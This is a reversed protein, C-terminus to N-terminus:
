YDSYETPYLLYKTISSVTNRYRDLNKMRDWEPHNVFADWNAQQATTDAHTTMYILHPMHASSLVECFFVPNFELEQFIASEGENFMEVKLNYLKETAAEYSRFEYVRESRPTTLEPLVMVPTASFSRLIMSEIRTYPSKDHPADIYAQASQQYETDQSLLGPLQEFQELSQFPLLIMMFDKRENLGDIPKFVGVNEIGSRHLAPLLANQFHSDLMAEQEASEFSFIKLQFYDTQATESQPTESQVQDGTQTCSSIAIVTFAILILTTRKM